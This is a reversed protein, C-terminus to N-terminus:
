NNENKPGYAKQLHPIIWERTNRSQDKNLVGILNRYVDNTKSPARPCKKLIKEIEKQSLKVDERFIIEGKSIFSNIREELLQMKKTVAPKGRCARNGKRDAIRLLLLDRWNNKGVKFLWKKVAKDSALEDFYFMHHRVLNTIYHTEEPQFGLRKCIEFAISAGVIEHKHFSVKGDKDEKRTAPKGIDHLLVALQLLPPYERAAALSDTLHEFITESSGSVIEFNSEQFDKQKKTM